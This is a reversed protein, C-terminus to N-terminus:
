FVGMKRLLEQYSMRNVGIGSTMVQGGSALSGIVSTM